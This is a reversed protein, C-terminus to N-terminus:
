ASPWSPTKIYHTKNTQMNHIGLTVHHSKGGAMAAEEFIKIDTGFARRYWKFTQKVDTNGVGLQQIGSIIYSM